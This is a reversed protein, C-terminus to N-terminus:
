TQPKHWERLKLRRDDRDDNAHDKKPLDHAM